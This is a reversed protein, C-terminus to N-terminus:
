KRGAIYWAGLGLAGFGLLLMTTQTRKSAAVQAVAVQAATQQAELQLQAIKLNDRRQRKAEKCRDTVCFADLYNLTTQAIGGVAQAIVGGALAGGSEPFHRIM